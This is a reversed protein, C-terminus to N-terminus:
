PQTYDYEEESVVILKGDLSEFIAIENESQSSQKHKEILKVALEAASIIDRNYNIITVYQASKDSRIIENSLKHTLVKHKEFNKFKYYGRRDKTLELMSVDSTVTPLSYEFGKDHLYEHIEGITRFEKNAKILM